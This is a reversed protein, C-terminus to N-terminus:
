RGSWVELEAISWYWTPDTATLRLRVYRARRPAFSVIVPTLPPNALASAWQTATEGQWVPQWTVGDPSADVALGRPYDTPFQGLGAVIAGVPTVEGLDIAIQQMPSQPGCNWRTGPDNDDLFRLLEPSCSANVSQVKLRHGQPPDVAFEPHANIAYQRTGGLTGVLRATPQREVLQVLETAREEVLVHLPQSGAAGVIVFPDAARSARRLLDYHHPEYGSYGNVSRWGGLVAEYQAAVDPDRGDGLPLRLVTGDRLSGPAPIAMRTVPVFPITTWGDALLGAAVVAAAGVAVSRRMRPLARALLVGAAVSLCLVAMMWFRSPVRLGNVGPAALLLSYLSRSLIPEGRWTVRPGLALLWMVVAGFLYFGAGAAKERYRWLVGASAIIVAVITIGPFLEGEPRCTSRLWSWAWSWEPACGFATVDASFTAIEEPTRVLAYARHASVFRALIPILPLAAVITTLAIAACAKWRREAIVFWCVWLGVLVTFFVLFYGNAAGQLLWCVGYVVLWRKRSTEIYNHLGLLAWPAWFVIGVQIHALQSGRYPAFAFALGALFAALSNGTLRRVLAFMAVGCLPYAILLTLNYASLADGTLWYLPSAIASVGLLTESFTLADPLPHFGPFNFWADTWPVHRANWVLIAANLLPDGVDSVIGAGRRAIVERGM